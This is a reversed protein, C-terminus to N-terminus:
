SPSTAENTAIPELGEGIEKAAEEDMYEAVSAAIEDMKLDPHQEILKLNELNLYGVKKEEADVKSRASQIDEKMKRDYPTALGTGSTTGSSEGVKPPHPPLTKLPSAQEVRKGSPADKSQDQRTTTPRPHKGNLVRIVADEMIHAAPVLHSEDILSCLSLLDRCPCSNALITEVWKLVEPKLKYHFGWSGSVIFRSPVRVNEGDIQAVQGWPGGAFFFKRKWNGGGGTPLDTIPKRTKTSSIFYYWGVDKPSSKLQYLYKVEDVTPEGHGCKDWLAFLGYLLM